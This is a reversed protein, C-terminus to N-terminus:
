KVFRIIAMEIILFLLAFIVFWKWIQNDTRDTQLKDFLSKISEVTKYNSLLNQSSLTLNSESRDYNYSINEIKEKKNFITYNGAQTPSDNFIMKVKNTLIQQLPIFENEDGKVVLIDDKNLTVTTVHSNSNGVILANVGSNQNQMALKYFTPVILPSQLFNSNEINFPASFVAIQGIGNNISTLFTSQDEYSLIAPTTNTLSFSKNTKPYQFNVVKKEFVNSYIPHDFNIKTILKEKNELSNFKLNGFNSLLSNLNSISCLASPIVILNGGKKIFSILTTILAQPIDDVENLVIVDQEELKNYDLSILTSSEFTFEDATYIRSLFNNKVAEGISIVNVKKPKSISFYYKNDYPLGNDEISAYGHFDTKPITFNINKKSNELTVTTKAILSKNNYLSIPTPEFNDGYGSLQISIEYFNDLTKQIFVSDISVNNKPVAKEIIFTAFNKDDINKLQKQDIGIGDTIIVIDKKFATKHAKLKAMINDLKFPSASYQLNQLENRISKIDTNWYNESNTILSFNVNEPTEELLEQVARKLLEGKKGKAQMSFSNDLIIYLENSANKSDKSEFFPQAFAVIICFLLLLRSALLLWKKIRSSKRSQISLAKLFRVNTFYEKKFRRLQFLHVLIPVILAFLFYLIEPHKFHM